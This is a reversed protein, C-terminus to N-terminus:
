AAPQDTQVKRPRGRRRPQEPIEPQHEFTSADLAAAEAQAKESMKSDVFAREAAAQSVERERREALELAAASSDAWGNAKARKYEAEDKAILQNGFAFQDAAERAQMWGDDGAQGGPFMNRRPTEVGVSLKGAGPLHGPIREAKFLMVPWRGAESNAIQARPRGPAGYASQDMEWKRREKSEESETDILYPM